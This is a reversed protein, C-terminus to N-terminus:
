RVVDASPVTKISKHILTLLLKPFLTIINILIHFINGTLLVITGLM